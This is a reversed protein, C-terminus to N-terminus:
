IQDPIEDPPVLLGDQTLLFCSSVMGIAIFLLQMMFSLGFLSLLIGVFLSLLLPGYNKGTTPNIYKRTRWQRRFCVWLLILLPILTQIGGEVWLSLYTNHPAQWGSPNCFEQIFGIGYGLPNRLAKSLWFLWVGSRTDSHAIDWRFLNQSISYSFIGHAVLFFLGGIILLLVIKTSAIKKMGMLFVIGALTAVWTTRSFTLFIAMVFIMALGVDKTRLKEFVRDLVILLGVMLLLGCNTPDRLVGILRWENLDRGSPLGLARLIEGLGAVGPVTFLLGYVANALAVAMLAKLFFELQVPKRITLVLCLGVGTSAFFLRITEFFGADGWVGNILYGCSFILFLTVPLMMGQLSRKTLFAVSVMILGIALPLRYLAATLGGIQRGVGPGGTLGAPENPAFAAPAVLFLLFLYFVIIWLSFPIKERSDLVAEDWM